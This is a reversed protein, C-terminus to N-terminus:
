GAKGQVIDYFVTLIILLREVHRSKKMILFIDCVSETTEIIYIVRERERKKHVTVINCVRTENRSGDQM